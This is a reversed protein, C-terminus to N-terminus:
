AGASGPDSPPTGPKKDDDKKDPAPKADAPDAPPAPDKKADADAAPSPSPAPAGGGRKGLFKSSFDYAQVAEAVDEDSVTNLIRTVKDFAERTEKIALSMAENLILERDTSDTVGDALGEPMFSDAHEIGEVLGLTDRMAGALIDIRKKVRSIAAVLDAMNHELGPNMKDWEEAIAKEVAEHIEEQILRHAELAAEEAEESDHDDRDALDLAVQYRKEEFESSKWLEQELEHRRRTPVRKTGQSMQDRLEKLKALKELEPGLAPALKQVAVALMAAGSEVMQTHQDVLQKMAEVLEDPVIDDEGEEVSDTGEIKRQLAKAIRRLIVEPPLEQVEGTSLIKDLMLRLRDFIERNDVFDSESPIEGILDNKIASMIYNVYSDATQSGIGDFIQEVKARLKGLVDLREKAGELSPHTDLIGDLADAVNYVLERLLLTKDSIIAQPAETEQAAAELVSLEPSNIEVGFDPTPSSDPANTAM